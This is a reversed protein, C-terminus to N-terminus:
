KHLAAFTKSVRLLNVRQEDGYIERERERRRRKKGMTNSSVEGKWSNLPDTGNGRNVGEKVEYGRGM